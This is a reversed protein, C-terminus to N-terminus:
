VKALFRQGPLRPCSFLLYYCCQSWTLIDQNPGSNEVHPLGGGERGGAPAPAPKDHTATINVLASLLRTLLATTQRDSMVIFGFYSFSCDGFKGCPCYM